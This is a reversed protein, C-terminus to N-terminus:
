LSCLTPHGIGPRHCWPIFNVNCFTGTPCRILKAAPTGACPLVADKSVCKVQLSNCEGCAVGALTVSPSCVLM